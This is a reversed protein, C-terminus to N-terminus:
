AEYGERYLETGCGSCIYTKFYSYKTFKNNILGFRPKHVLVMELSPLQRSSGCYDCTPAGTPTKHIRCYEELSPRNELWASWQAYQSNNRKIELYNKFPLAVILFILGGIFIFTWM